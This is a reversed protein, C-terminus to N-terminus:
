CGDNTFEFDEDYVYGEDLAVQGYGMLDDLALSYQDFDRDNCAEALKECLWLLDDLQLHTLKKM